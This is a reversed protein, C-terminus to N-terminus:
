WLSGMAMTIDEGAIGFAEDRCLFAALAAVEEPALLRKQPLGAAVKARYEEVSVDLGAIAIEDRCANYNSDTAVWGPNIANCTVGYAAGELAVCRTLGLLGAKSACYAGYMPHGIRAATSAFNVIRGWRREIMGPLCLKITRYPGNLNTDIMRDWLADPHDVIFKRISSGAANVLIDIRGFAAIIADFSARVSEGSCVDLPMALGRVGHAEIAAKTAALAEDDPTHANQGELVVGRQSRVLSGVAVDAGSAALALATARGM